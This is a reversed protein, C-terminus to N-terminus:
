HGICLALRRSDAGQGLLQAVSVKTKISTVTGGMSLVLYMERQTPLRWGSGKSECAAKQKRGHKVM